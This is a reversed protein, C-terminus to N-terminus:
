LEVKELYDGIAMGEFYLEDILVSGDLVRVDLYAPVATSDRRDQRVLEQYLSEAKPALKENLYYKLMNEPLKVVDFEGSVFQISSQIYDRGEPPTEFLEAFRTFGQDDVELGLYVKQGRKHEIGPKKPFNINGFSLQVYRGRFADYPDVPVPRFRYSVGEQLVQQSNRIMQWPFWLYLLMVLAFSAIHFPKM